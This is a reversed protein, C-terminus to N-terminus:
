EIRLKQARGGRVPAIEGMRAPSGIAITCAHIVVVRIASRNTTRAAPGASSRAVPARTRRRMSGAPVRAACCAHVSAHVRACASPVSTSKPKMPQPFRKSARGCRPSDDDDRRALSVVSITSHSSSARGDDDLTRCTASSGSMRATRCRPNTGHSAASRSSGAQQPSARATSEPRETASSSERPEGIRAASAKSLRAPHRTRSKRRTARRRSDWARGRRQRRCFPARRVPSRWSQRVRSRAPQDGFHLSQRSRPRCAAASRVSRSAIAANSRRLSARRAPAASSVSPRRRSPRPRAASAFDMNASACSRNWRSRATALIARPGRTDRGQGFRDRAGSQHPASMGRRTSPRMRARNRLPTTELVRARANTSRAPVAHLRATSEPHPQARPLRRVIRSISTGPPVAAFRPRHTLRRMASPRARGAVKM